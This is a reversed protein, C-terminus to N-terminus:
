RTYLYNQFFQTNLAPDFYHKRKIWILGDGKSIMAVDIPGGVTETQMSIKRRLSTLNVMSEALTALESKPLMSVLQTVPRVFNAHRYKSLGDQYDEFVGTASSRFQAKIRDKTKKDLFKCEDVVLQPYQELLAFMDSEIEIQYTPNVGEMFAYVMESQAFPIISASANGSMSETMDLRHHLRGHFVGHLTYAAMSPFLEKTGFGGVVLGTGSPWNFDPPCKVACLACVSILMARISKTLKIGEFVHKILEEAVKQRKVKVSALFKAGTRPLYPAKNWYKSYATAIISVDEADPPEGAECNTRRQKREEMTQRM